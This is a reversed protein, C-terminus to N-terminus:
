KSKRLKRGFYEIALLRRLPPPSSRPSSVSRECLFVLTMKGSRLPPANVQSLIGLWLPFSQFAEHEAPGSQHQRIMVSNQKSYKSCTTSPVRSAHARVQLILGPMLRIHYHWIQALAPLIRDTSRRSRGAAPRGASRWSIAFKRGDAAHHAARVLHHHRRAGGAREVQILGSSERRRRRPRPRPARSQRPASPASQRPRSAPAPGPPRCPDQAPPLLRARRVGFQDHHRRRMLIRKSDAHSQAAPIARSPWGCCHRSQRLRSCNSNLCWSLM